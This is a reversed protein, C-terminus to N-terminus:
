FLRWSLIQQFFQPVSPPYVVAMFVMGFLAGYLHASHNIYGGGKRDSYYSYGLFLIGFIFAKLQIFFYLYIDMLPAYLIAAFLVASVGGSAGLSNYNSNSKNKFFTPVDSIVIGLIFLVLFYLTGSAGFLMAFLREIGEGIFWLSLMNFILHGYDAHVFGSTIFRYYENKKTVRYPNMIMKEMFSYNNFAYYSIGCIIIILIITISM